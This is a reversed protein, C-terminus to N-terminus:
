KKRLSKVKALLENEANPGAKVGTPLRFMFVIGVALWLGFMAWSQWALQASYPTIPLYLIFLALTLVASIIGIIMGGNGKGGIRLPRDMAPERKRLIIFGVSVLFYAIVIAPSGADVIWGLAASGLFPALASLIGIFIISNVPTRYKPHLKGFWAPIMGAVAMAWMLRSSGMLFANWSTIIGALGGAIVLKGWFASNFMAALADATVLDHTALESAPMALSTMWIIIVYFAIAMFVSVVVLKGIKAPPLKIEEASQPIVDFGVFLFPVVAVVAIFGAGGGTFLPEANAAEGGTLGGALLLFAVIILFSVVFTQVLSALKVGRINIWAIIIATVTGVLAWTLYVDSDAITWLKIHELNPFLYLATKPVAVAEFMVVSIYGGTIAWSGFLSVRPGMARILYNHEGGAHPMAAVMESYVTGVFCMIIGGVVFALIAGMTGAGSLWEGTLVVWGFGIMAGFGIFLADVSGLAKVFGHGRDDVETQQQQSM